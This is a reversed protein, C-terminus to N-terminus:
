RPQHADIGVGVPELARRVEADLRGRAADIAEELVELGVAHADGEVGGRRMRVVFVRALQLRAAHHHDVQRRRRDAGVAHRAHGQALVDAWALTLYVPYTAPPLRGDRHHRRYAAHLRDLVGLDHAGHRRARDPRPGALIDVLERAGGGGGDLADATR